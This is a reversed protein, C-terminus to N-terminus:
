YERGIELLSVNDLSSVCLSCVSIFYKVANFSHHPTVVLGSETGKRNRKMRLKQGLIRKQTYFKLAADSM